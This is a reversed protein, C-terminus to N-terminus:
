DGAMTSAASFGVTGIETYGLIRTVEPRFMQKDSHELGEKNCMWEYLMRRLEPFNSDPRDGMLTYDDRINIVNSTVLNGSFANCTAILVKKM